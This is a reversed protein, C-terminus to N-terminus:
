PQRRLLLQRDRAGGVGDRQDLTFSADPHDVYNTGHYYYGISSRSQAAPGDKGQGSHDEKRSSEEKGALSSATTERVGSGPVRSETHYLRGTIISLLGKSSVYSRWSSVFCSIFSM